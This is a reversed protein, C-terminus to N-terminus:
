VHARGIKSLSPTQASTNYSSHSRVRTQLALTAQLLVVLVLVM